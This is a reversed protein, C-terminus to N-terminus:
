RVITGSAVNARCIPCAKKEMIWDMVCDRHYVHSCSLRIVGGESEDFDDMCIACSEDTAEDENGEDTKLHAQYMELEHAVDPSIELFSQLLEYVQIFVRPLVRGRDNWHQAFYFCEAHFHMMRSLLAKFRLTREEITKQNDDVYRKKPFPLSLLAQFSRVFSTGKLEPQADCKSHLKKLKSRMKAYHSYRKNVLWWRKTIPCYVTMIYLTYYGIALHLEKRARTRIGCENVLQSQRADLSDGMSCESPHKPVTAKKLLFPIGERHKAKFM